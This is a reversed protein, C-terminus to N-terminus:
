LSGRRRRVLREIERQQDRRKITERKDHLKKGRVLALEVKALGRDNFYITLPVLTLGRQTVRALLKRIQRRHLLLKRERTPEHQAYGANAYPAIHCGRLFVEGDRILAFAEELSAKGARLSKVESGTLAIGAELKELIEFNFRAKRNVIKPPMPGSRAM